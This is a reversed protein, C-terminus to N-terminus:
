AQQDVISLTSETEKQNPSCLASVEMKAADAYLRLPLNKDWTAIRTTEMLHSKVNQFEQDHTETWKFHVGKSNLQRIHEM